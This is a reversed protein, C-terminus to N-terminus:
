TLDADHDLLKALGFDTVKPVTTRAWDDTSTNPAVRQLLINSPKLDRHLVGREHAVHIARALSEVLEAALRPPQPMRNVRQALTGSDAYELAFFPQGDVVGVEHIQVINPHQLRAVAQAEAQFRERDIRDAQVGARLMKVAVTRNLQLQRARYVVGRGGRGLEGQILYGPIIPLPPPTFAAAGALLRNSAAWAPGSQLRTEETDPTEGPRLHRPGTSATMKELTQQCGACASVHVDLEAEIPQSLANALLAELVAAPPCPTM